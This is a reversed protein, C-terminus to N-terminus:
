IKSGCRGQFNGPPPAVGAGSRQLLYRSKPNAGCIFEPTQVMLSTDTM